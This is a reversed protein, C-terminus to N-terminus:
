KIYILARGAHIGKNWFLTDSRVTFPQSGGHRKQSDFEPGRSSCGTSMVASGDRWSTIKSHLVQSVQFESYLLIAKFEVFIWRRQRRLVPIVQPLDVGLRFNM